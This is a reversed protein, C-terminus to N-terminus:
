EALAVAVRDGNVTTTEFSGADGAKRHLYGLAKGESGITTLTGVCKDGFSIEVGESIHSDAPFSFARLSRNVRGISKVRSIVEQGIYCGKSYSICQEMGSEQVLMGPLLESGWAPILGAIRFDALEGSAAYEKESFNKGLEASSAIVDRGRRGFREVSRIIGTPAAEDFSHILQYDASRDSWECDDAILYRDLRSLIEERLELETELLFSEGALRYITVLAQLRAKADTVFAQIARRDDALTVDNTVQGNLYRAADPGDLQLFTRSAPATHM